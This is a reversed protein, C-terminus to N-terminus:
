GRALEALVRKAIGEGNMGLAAHQEAPSNM